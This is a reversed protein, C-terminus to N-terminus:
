TKTILPPRWEPLVSAAQATSHLFYKASHLDLASQLGAIGGGIVLCDVKKKKEDM